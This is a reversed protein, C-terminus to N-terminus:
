LIRSPVVPVMQTWVGLLAALSFGATVAVHNAYKQDQFYDTIFPGTTAMYFSCYLVTYLVTLLFLKQNHLGVCNAIWPCHHDMKLLCTGCQSCHHARDPKFHICIACFRLMGFNTREDLVIGMREALSSLFGKQAQIDACKLYADFDEKRARYKEPVLKPPACVTAILAWTLKLFLIGLMMLNTFTLAPYESIITICYTYVYIVHAFVLLAFLFVPPVYSLCKATNSMDSM